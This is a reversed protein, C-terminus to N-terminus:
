DKLFGYEYVKPQIKEALVRLKERLAALLANYSEDESKTKMTGTDGGGISDRRGQFFERIDYFSANVSVTRNNKSKALYYRWLERGADLVSQAEKSAGADASLTKGKLFDSMFNSAFKERAGVEKETFPIWHNTGFQAQINNNFLINVLCDNQFEADNKYGDNPYLFQDRDNLWTAQICHRVSYYIAVEILNKDTIWSGRPAAMQSKDNMIFVFNNHQFDNGLCAIFGIIKESSRNRTTIIWENIFKDNDYCCLKKGGLHENNEDFVDAIISNFRKKIGTDWIQFGIPFKGKVNDFTSAPILFVKKLKALFFSRFAKFNPANLTKLTSFVAIKCDPIEFYIRTLFQVFLERNACNGMTLKYKTNIMTKNLGTKDTGTKSMTEAYPPNIYVILKKRKEGDDIINRLGEPLKDFSDNL